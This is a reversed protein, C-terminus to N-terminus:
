HARTISIVSKLAATRPPTSVGPPAPPPWRTSV